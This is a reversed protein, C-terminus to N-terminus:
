VAGGVKLLQHYDGESVPCFNELFLKIAFRMFPGSQEILTLRAIHVATAFSM